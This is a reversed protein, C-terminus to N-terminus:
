AGTIPCAILGIAALLAVGTLLPATVATIGAASCALARRLGGVTPAGHSLRAMRTDLAERGMALAGDPVRHGSVRLLAARVAEPGWARAAAADATFEVLERIAAPAQAFLPVFPLVVRLADVLTILLHHRGRLHAREHALVAAVAADSLHRNLGDTAVITGPRGALSYALPQDHALWLTTPSRDDRRGALRLVALHDRRSRARRWVKRLGVIVLRVTFVLLLALGVLGVMEEAHPPAGHHLASWCSHLMAVLSSVPGHDPTLLMAVGVGVALLVGAMSLLWGVLVVLPDRRRSDVRRLWGPMLWGAVTASMLVALAATM